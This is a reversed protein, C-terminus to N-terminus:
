QFAAQESTQLSNMLASSFTLRHLPCPGYTRLATRHELTAYGKHRAFGYEPYLEHAEDMASDRAVKALISAAAIGASLGDGGVLTKQPLKVGPIAKNGDVLVLAPVLGPHSGSLQALTAEVARRMALLSAHFINLTDIEEVTAEGLAFALAEERIRPALAERKKHSLKKSDNIGAIPRARLDLIVCAAVVNGALPGRGVEDVGCLLRPDASDSRLADALRLDHRWLATADVNM